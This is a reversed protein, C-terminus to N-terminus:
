WAGRDMPNELCSCQLPNGNGEGPLIAIILTYGILLTIITKPSCCLSEAMCMCTIMRGWVGREDLNGCLMSCLEM